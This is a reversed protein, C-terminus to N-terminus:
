GASLWTGAVTSLLALSGLTGPTFSSWVHSTYLKAHSPMTLHWPTVGPVQQSMVMDATHAANDFALTDGGPVQQSM